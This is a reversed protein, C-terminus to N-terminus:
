FIEGIFMIARKKKKKQEKDTRLDPVDTKQLFMIQFGSNLNIRRKDGNDEQTNIRCALKMTYQSDYM